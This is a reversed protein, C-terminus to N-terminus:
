CPLRATGMGKSLHLGNLIHAWICVCSTNAKDPPSDGDGNSGDDDDSDEDDNSEEGSDSSSAISLHADHELHADHKRRNELDGLIEYTNGIAAFIRHENSHNPLHDPHHLRALTRYSSKSQWETANMPVDLVKYPDMSDFQPSIGDNDNNDDEVVDTSQFEDVHGDPEDISPNSNDADDNTAADNDNNDGEVRGDSDDDEVVDVDNSDGEVIDRPQDVAQSEDIHM